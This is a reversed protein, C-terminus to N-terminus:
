KRGTATNLTLFESMCMCVFAPNRGNTSYDTLSENDATILCNKVTQVQTFMALNDTCCNTLFVLIDGGRPYRRCPSIEATQAATPSIGDTFSGRGLAEMGVAPYSFM